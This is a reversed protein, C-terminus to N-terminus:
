GQAALAPHQEAVLRDICAVLDGVTDMRLEQAGGASPVAIAFEDEVAFMVELVSLSDIKLDEFRAEPQLLEPAIDFNAHLLAQVSQLTTM